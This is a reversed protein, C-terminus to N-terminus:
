KADYWTKGNQEWSRMYYSKFPKTGKPKKANAQKIFNNIAKYVEEKNECRAIQRTEGFQNEFWLIM